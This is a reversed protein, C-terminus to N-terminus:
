RSSTMPNYIQNDETYTALQLIVVALPVISLDTSKIDYIYNTILYGDKLIVSNGWRADSYRHWFTISNRQEYIIQAM